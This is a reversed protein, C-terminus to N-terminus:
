KKAAPVELSAIFTLDRAGLKEVQKPTLTFTVVVQEGNPGAILFCNQMVEVGDMEGLASLRYVWREKSDSPVEGAQLEKKLEFGPAGYIADRFEDGSLHKGREASTWPSITAQAVFEGRDMLRLVQHSDTASVMQWERGHLLEYRGKADRLELYTMTAPPAFNDPVSVLAVDSLKDPQDIPTRTLTNTATLTTAPSVPGPDRREKQKWELAVLRKAKLDFRGKAAVDMKVQAGQDVGGSTGSVTFYAVGDKVEDLKGALDQETLGDFNCLAQVVGNAVKWTDGAAVAKGPLLGVVALTDFHDSTLDLEARTLAGAPSYVLPQDKHRQAVVLRREPRLTRESTEGTVTISARATEYVRAAKDPVGDKGVSLVREPYEHTAAAKLPLSEMKDRREVRMEGELKMDLRIRFCDGSQVSEALPYTQPERARAGSQFVGFLSAAIILVRWASM